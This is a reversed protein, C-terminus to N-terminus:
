QFQYFKNVLRTEKSNEVDNSSKITMNNGTSLLFANGNQTATQNQNSTFSM